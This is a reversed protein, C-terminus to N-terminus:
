KGVGLSVGQNWPQIVTCSLLLSILLLGVLHKTNPSMSQGWFCPNCWIRWEVVLCIRTSACNVATNKGCSWGFCFLMDDSSGYDYSGRCDYIFFRGRIKVTWEERTTLWDFSYYIPFIIKWSVVDPDRSIWEPQVAGVQLQPILSAVIKALFVQLTWLWCWGIVIGSVFSLCLVLDLSVIQRLRFWNKWHILSCRDMHFGPLKAM